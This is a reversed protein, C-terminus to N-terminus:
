NMVRAEPQPEERGALSMAKRYAKAPDTEILPVARAILSKFEIVKEGRLVFCADGYWLLSKEEDREIVFCDNQGEGVELLHFLKLFDDPQMHWTSQWWTLSVTAHECQGVFRYDDLLAIQMFHQCM